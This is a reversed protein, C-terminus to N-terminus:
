IHSVTAKGGNTLGSHSDHIAKGGCHNAKAKGHIDLVQTGEKNRISQELMQSSYISDM